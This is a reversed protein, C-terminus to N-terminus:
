SESRGQRTESKLWERLKDEVDERLVPTFRLFEQSESYEVNASLIGEAGYFLLLESTRTRGEVLSIHAYGGTGNLASLLMDAQGKECGSALMGELDRKELLDTDILAEMLSKVPGTPLELAELLAEGLRESPRLTCNFDEARELVAGAAPYLTLKQWNGDRRLSAGIVSKCDACAGLLAAFDPELTFEGDFNLIGCGADMLELEADQAFAPFNQDSMGPMVNPLGYIGQKHLRLVAYLLAGASLSYAQEMIEGGIM